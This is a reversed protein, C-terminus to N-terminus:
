SQELKDWLALYEAKSLTPRFSNKVEKASAAGDCLLDVVTEALLIAPVIYAMRPDAVRFSANHPAGTYGGVSPHIIPLITSVDGMDTSAAISGGRRVGNQGVLRQANAEFLRTLPEDQQLPLYGAIEKIKVQAGIAMAGAELAVNVKSSAQMIADISAGRVFMEMRVDAPVINVLDGGKTIIHHVRIHDEDRFTERICNIGMLGLMAANLANVGAFPAAGAHAEKGFYRVFKGLFGNSSGGVSIGPAPSAHIMMAMDIDDFIGLRIFEQKGGYFRIKGEDALSQRYEIEVLEEAPVALLAVSGALHPMVGSEVLGIAVGLLTAIQAHHGCVHAANTDPNREPSDLCTIADLEGLVAVRPGQGQGCLDARLGTIALDKQYPLGLKQFLEEVVRATRVEKFGLEPNRFIDEGIAIITEANREIAAAVKQKLDNM